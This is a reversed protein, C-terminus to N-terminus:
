YGKSKVLMKQSLIPYKTLDITPSQVSNTCRINFIDLAELGELGLICGFSGSCIVFETEYSKNKHRIITSFKGKIKLPKVSGYGFINNVVNKIGIRSKELRNLNTEDIINITTGTDILFKIHNDLVRIEVFRKKSMHSNVTYVHDNEVDDLQYPNQEFHNLKGCKTCTKGHAPCKRNTHPYEYGCLGCKRPQDTELHASRQSSQYAKQHRTDQKYNSNCADGTM